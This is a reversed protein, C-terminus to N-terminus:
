IKGGQLNQLTQQVLGEIDSRTWGVQLAEAAWDRLRMELKARAGEVDGAPRFSDGIRASFGLRMRVVGEDRLTAYAHRVTHLNIGLSAALERVSPLSEGPRLDGKLVAERVQAAIQRYLPREDSADVSIMLSMNYLMYFM